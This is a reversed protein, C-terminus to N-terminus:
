ELIKVFHDRYQEEATEKAICWNFVEQVANFIISLQEETMNMPHPFGVINWTVRIRSSMIYRDNDKNSIKELVLDDPAVSFDHL